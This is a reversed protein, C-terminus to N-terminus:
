KFLEEADFKPKGMNIIPIDYDMAIRLAQGTGGVVKGGKTWCVLKKVPDNLKPGLVILANRAHLKTVYPSLRESAPHYKYVTEIAEDPIYGYPSYIEKNHGAGSAFASDAGLAGGSRLIYGSEAMFEGYARMIELFFPPTERAGIGAYYLEPEM